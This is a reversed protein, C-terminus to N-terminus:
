LHHLLHPPPLLLTLLYPRTPPLREPCGVARQRSLRLHFPLPHIPSPSERPITVISVIPPSWRDAAPLLHLFPPFRLVIRHVKTHLGECADVVRRLRIENPSHHKEIHSYMNLHFVIIFADSEFHLTEDREHFWASDTMSVYMLSVSLCVCLSLFFRCM